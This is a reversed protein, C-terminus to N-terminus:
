RLGRITMRTGISLQNVKAVLALQNIAATSNWFLSTVRCRGNAAATPDYMTHSLLGLKKFTANDYNHLLLRAICVSGAGANAGPCNIRGVGSDPTAQNNSGAYVGNADTVSEYYYNAGADGNIQVGVQSTTVAFGSVTTACTILVELAPFGPPIGNVGTDISAALATLTQDFITEGTTLAFPARM